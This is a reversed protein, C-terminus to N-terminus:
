EIVLNSYWTGTNTGPIVFINSPTLTKKERKKKITQPTRASNKDIVWMCLLGYSM